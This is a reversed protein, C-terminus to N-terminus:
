DGLWQGLKRTPEMNELVTKLVAVIPIGLILGMGGWMWGFFMISVTSAVPNLQVGKGVLKPILLNAAVVHLGTVSAAIVAVPAGSDFTVLGVILPPLLGLILGLYPITSAVGSVTGLVIWYPLGVLLFVFATAVSLIGAVIANGTLFKQLMKEIGAITTSATERHERPFLALTRRILHEKEALLFYVLFPIFSLSFLISTLSGLGRLFTESWSTTDRLIIQAGKVPSPPAPPAITRGADQLTETLRYAENSIRQVLPANRIQEILTPLDSFLQQASGYTLYLIGYLVAIALFVVIVSSTRRGLRVRKGLLVVLPELALAILISSLITIFVSSAFYCLTLLGLVALVVLSGLVARDSRRRIFHGPVVGPPLPSGPAVTVEQPAPPPAVEKKQEPPVM